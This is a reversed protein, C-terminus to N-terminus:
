FQDRMFHVAQKYVKIRVEKHSGGYEGDLSWPIEEESELEVENVRALYIRENNLQGTLLHNVIAQLEMLTQPMKILLMEYFGDDLLVDKGTIGKFGGVSDSNAFMGYLFDDEIEVGNHRIKLHCKKTEPLRKIGSLIYAMRGLINKATQPTDYSVNTFIGFAATYAFYEGNLSGMDCAFATGNVACEAAQVMNKSLKLSYGFDNTTGTPIYGVPIDKGCEMLGGAVENVTGDGGSCVILDCADELAYAKAVSKADLKGTTAHVIVEYDTRSFVDLIESLQGRIKGKGANPNYIFLM